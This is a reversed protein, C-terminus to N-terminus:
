IFPVDPVSGADVVIMEDGKEVWAPLDDQKEAKVFYSIRETMNGNYEEHKVVCAGTKGVWSAINTDGEPIAAFSDYFQTLNRNTIEPRDPMFVIYYYLTRNYNSVDFQLTIMDKGTKSVAKEASKVRIRHKGEPILEFKQEERKFEWAM